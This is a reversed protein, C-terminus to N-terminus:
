AIKLDSTLEDMGVQQRRVMAKTVRVEGRAQRRPAQDPQVGGLVALVAPQRGRLRLAQHAGPGIPRRNPLQQSLLSPRSPKHTPRLLTAYQAM